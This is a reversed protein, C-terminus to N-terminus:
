AAFVAVNPSGICHLVVPTSKQLPYNMHLIFLLFRRHFCFSIYLCCIFHESLYSNCAIYFLWLHNRFSNLTFVVLVELCHWFLLSLVGCLILETCSIAAPWRDSDPVIEHTVSLIRKRGTVIVPLNEFKLLIDYVSSWCLNSTVPVFHWSDSM